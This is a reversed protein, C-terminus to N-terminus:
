TLTPARRWVPLRASSCCRRCLRVAACCTVETTKARPCCSSRPTTRRSRRAVDATVGFGSFEAACGQDLEFPSTWSRLESQYTPDQRRLAETLRSAEALRPRADDPVVDLMVDDTDIASRLMSELAAYKRPVAFPLRDTRRRLIADARQLQADNPKPIRAFDLTALHDPEDADPFRHTDADLGAAALDRSDPDTNPLHGSQIPM